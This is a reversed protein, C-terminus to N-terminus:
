LIFLTQVGQIVLLLAIRVSMIDIQMSMVFCIRRVFFLYLWSAVQSPDYYVGYYFSNFLKAFDKDDMLSPEVFKTALVSIIAVALLIFLSVPNVEIKEPYLSLHRGAGSGALDMTYTQITKRIVASFFLMTTMKEWIKKSCAWKEM